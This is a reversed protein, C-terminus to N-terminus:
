VVSKRDLGDIIRGGEFAPMQRSCCTLGREFENLAPRGRDRHDDRHRMRSACIGFFQFRAHARRSIGAKPKFVPQDIQDRAVHGGPGTRCQQNCMGRPRHDIEVSGRFVEVPVHHRSALGGTPRAKSCPAAGPATEAEYWSPQWTQSLQPFRSHTQVVEFRPYFQYMPGIMRGQCLDQFAQAIAPSTTQQDIHVRHRREARLRSGTRRGFENDAIAETRRTRRMEAERGDVMEIHRSSPNRMVSGICPTIDEIAVSRRRASQVSHLDLYTTTGIEVPRQSLRPLAQRCHDIDDGAAHPPDCVLETGLTAYKRLGSFLCAPPEAPDPGLFVAGHFLVLRGLNLSSTRKRVSIEVSWSPLGRSWKFIIQKGDSDLASRPAPRVM